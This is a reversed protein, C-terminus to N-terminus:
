QRQRRLLDHQWIVIWEALTVQGVSPMHTVEREIWGVVIAGAHPPRPHDTAPRRSRGTATWPRCAPGINVVYVNQSINGTDIDARARVWWTWACPGRWIM